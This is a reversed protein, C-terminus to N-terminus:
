VMAYPNSVVANYCRNLQLGHNWLDTDVGGIHPLLPYQQKSSKSSDYSFAFQAGVISSETM